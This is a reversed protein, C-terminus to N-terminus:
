IWCVVRGSNGVGRTWSIRGDGQRQSSLDLPGSAPPTQYEQRWLAGLGRKSGEPMAANSCKKQVVFAHRQLKMGVGLTSELTWSGCTGGSPSVVSPAPARAESGASCVGNLFRERDSCGGLQVPAM